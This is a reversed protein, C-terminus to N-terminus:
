ISNNNDIDNKIREIIKTTSINDIYDVIKIKGGHKEVTSKEPLDELKYDGGKVHFDPKIVSIFKNPTEEDFICVYDVFYLSALLIARDEQNLIPRGKGKIKKVSKDSNVGVILVNGFTRAKKLYECHGRHLLDFVGNTTVIKKGKKKLEKVILKLEKLAKIKEIM